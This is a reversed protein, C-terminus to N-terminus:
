VVVRFIQSQILWEKTQKGRGRARTIEKNPTLVFNESFGKTEGKANHGLTVNGSVIILVTLDKKHNASNENTEESNHNPNLYHSDVAQIDFHVSPLEDLFAKQLALGDTRVIGNYVISPLAKGDPSITPKM